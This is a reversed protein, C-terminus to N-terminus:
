QSKSDNCKYNVEQVSEGQRYQRTGEQLHDEEQTERPPARLQPLTQGGAGEQGHRGARGRGAGQLRPGRHNLQSM